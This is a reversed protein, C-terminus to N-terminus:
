KNQNYQFVSARKSKQCKIVARFYRCYRNATFFYQRYVIATPLPRGTNVLRCKDYRSEMSDYDLGTSAKVRLHPICIVHVEVVVLSRAVFKPKYCSKRFRCLFIQGVHNCVGSIIHRSYWHKVPGGVNYHIPALSNVTAPTHRRRDEDTVSANAVCSVPPLVRRRAM